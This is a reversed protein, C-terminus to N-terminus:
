QADRAARRLNLLVWYPTALLVGVSAKVMFPIENYPSIYGEVLGAPILWAASFLVVDLAPRARQQLAAKRSQSGPNILADGLYMGCGGAVFIVSLELVGHAVIFDLLRSAMGYVGVVAFIGGISAGNLILVLVTLFGGAIGAAFATFAVGINNTTIQSAALSSMGRVGETWLRGERLNAIAEESLLQWGIEPNLWVLFAATAGSLLAIITALACYGRIERFSEPVRRLFPLRDGKAANLRRGYLLRRGYSVLRLAERTEATGPYFTALQAYTQCLEQYQEAIHYITEGPLGRSSELLQLGAEVERFRDHLAERRSAADAAYSM